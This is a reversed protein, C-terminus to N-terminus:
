TARMRALSPRRPRASATPTAARLAGGSGALSLHTRRHEPPRRFTMTDEHGCRVLPGVPHLHDVHPREHRSCVAPLAPWHACDDSPDLDLGIPRILRKRHDAFSTNRHQLAYGSRRAAIPRPALVTGDDLMGEPEEVRFFVGPGRLRGEVLEAVHGARRRREDADINALNDPVGLVAASVACTQWGGADLCEAPTLHGAPVVPRVDRCNLSATM